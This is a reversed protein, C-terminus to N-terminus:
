LARYGDIYGACDEKVNRKELPFNDIAQQILEIGSGDKIMGATVRIVKWGMVAATSYKLCDAEYGKGRNHRGGTRVQVMGGKDLKQLVKVGCKHCIVVQGYIGGEVELALRRGPWALDFRWRRVPHFRYEKVPKPLGLDCIQDYIATEWDTKSRLKAKKNFRM